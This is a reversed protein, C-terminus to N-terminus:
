APGPLCSRWEMTSPGNFTTTTEEETPPPPPSNESCLAGLNSVGRAWAWMGLLTPLSGTSEAVVTPTRFIRVMVGGVTLAVVDLVSFPRPAKTKTARSMSINLVSSEPLLGVAVHNQRALYLLLFGGPNRNLDLPSM